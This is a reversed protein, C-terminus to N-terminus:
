ELLHSRLADKVFQAEDYQFPLHPMALLLSPNSAKVQEMARQIDVDVQTRTLKTYITASDRPRECVIM